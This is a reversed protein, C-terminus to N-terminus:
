KKMTYLYGINQKAEKVSTKARSMVTVSNAFCSSYPYKGLIEDVKNILFCLEEKDKKDVVVENEFM